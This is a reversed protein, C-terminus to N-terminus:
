IIRLLASLTYKHHRQAIGEMDGLVSPRSLVIVVCSSASSMRAKGEPGRGSPDPVLSLTPFGGVLFCRDFSSRTRM